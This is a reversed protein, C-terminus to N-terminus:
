KGKVSPLAQPLFRSTLNSPFSWEVRFFHFFHFINENFYSKIDSKFQILRQTISSQFSLSWVKLNIRESERISNFIRVASIWARWSELATQVADIDYEEFADLVPIYVCV